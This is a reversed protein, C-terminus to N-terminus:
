LWPKAVSQQNRRRLTGRERQIASWFLRDTLPDCEILTKHMGTAKDVWRSIRSQAKQQELSTEEATQLELGSHKVQAKQLELHIAM